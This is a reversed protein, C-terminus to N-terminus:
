AVLRRQVMVKDISRNEHTAIEGLEEHNSTMGKHLIVDALKQGESTNTDGIVFMPIRIGLVARIVIMIEKLAALYRRRYQQSATLHISSAGFPVTAVMLRNRDWWKPKSDDPGSGQGINISGILKVWRRKRIHVRKGIFTPTSAQGAKNTDSIMLHDHKKMFRELWGQDGAEQCAVVDPGYSLLKLMDDQDFHGGMNISLILLDVWQGRRKRVQVHVFLAEHDSGTRVTWQNVFKVKAKV